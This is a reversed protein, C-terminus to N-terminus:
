WSFLIRTIECRLTNFRSASAIVFMGPDQVFFNGDQFGTFVLPDSYIYWQYYNAVTHLTLEYAPNLPSIPCVQIAALSAVTAWPVSLANKRLLLNTDFFRIGFLLVFTDAASIRILIRSLENYFPYRLGDYTTKISFDRAPIASFVARESQCTVAPSSSCSSVIM